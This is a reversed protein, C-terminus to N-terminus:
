KFVDLLAPMNRELYNLVATEIHKNLDAGLSVESTVRHLPSKGNKTARWSWCHDMSTFISGEAVLTRDGVDVNVKKVVVSM